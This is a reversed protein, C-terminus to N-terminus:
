LYMAFSTYICLFFISICSFVQLIQIWFGLFIQMIFSKDKCLFNPSIIAMSNCFICTKDAVQWSYLPDSGVYLLQEFYLSLVTLIPVCTFGTIKANFINATYELTKHTNYLMYCWTQKSKHKTSWTLCFCAHADHRVPLLWSVSIRM